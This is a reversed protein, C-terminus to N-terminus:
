VQTGNVAEVTKIEPVKGKIAQEIGAKMTMTSMTCNVCNGLWKIRVTLDDTIDLVEVDGGDVALHPRIDELAENIKLLLSDKDQQPM